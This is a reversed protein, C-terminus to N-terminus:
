TGLLGRGEKKIRGEKTMKKMVKDLIGNIFDKSKPTSYTKAIDIYENMSVKIPISPFYLFECLSMKILIMDIRTIREIEWNKLQPEVLEVFKANHKHTKFALELAFKNKEALQGNKPFLSYNEANELNFAHIQKVVNTIIIMEDDIFNVFHDELLSVFLENSPMIKKCLYALIQKNDKATHTMKATYDQYAESEVWAKHLSVVLSNDILTNLKATKIASKYTKNEKLFLCFANKTIRTDITQDAKTPRFKRSRKEQNVLIHEVVKNMLLFYLLYLHHVEEVSKKINNQVGLLNLGENLEQAYLNQM